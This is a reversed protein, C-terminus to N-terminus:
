SAANGVTVHARTSGARRAAIMPGGFGLEAGTSEGAAAEADDGPTGPDGLAAQELIERVLPVKVREDGVDGALPHAGVHLVQDAPEVRAPREELEEGVQEVAPDGIVGFMGVFPGQM